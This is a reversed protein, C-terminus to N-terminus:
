TPGAHPGLHLIMENRIGDEGPAKKTKLSMIAWKLEQLTVDKTM